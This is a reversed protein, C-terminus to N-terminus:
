KLLYTESDPWRIVKTMIDAIEKPSIPIDELIWKRLLCGCGGILLTALVKVTDEGMQSFRAENKYLEWFRDFIENFQAMMDADTNCRYLIRALDKHTYLYTCADELLQRATELDKPPAISPMMGLVFNREIESLVDGLTEYHRYFTARNIGSEACLESVRIKDLPKSELLRLLAEQIMRKTITVRLDQKM